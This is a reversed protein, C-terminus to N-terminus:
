GPSQPTFCCRAPERGLPGRRLWRRRACRHAPPRYGPGGRRTVEDTASSRGWSEADEALHPRVLHARLWFPTEVRSQNVIWLSALKRNKLRQPFRGSDSSISSLAQSVRPGPPSPPPTAVAATSDPSGPVGANESTPGWSKGRRSAPFGSGAERTSWGNGTLPAQKQSEWCVFAHSTRDTGWCPVSLM